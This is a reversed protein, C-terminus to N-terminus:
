AASGNTSEVEVKLDTLRTLVRARVVESLQRWAFDGLCGHAELDREFRAPLSPGVAPPAREALTRLPDHLETGASEYCWGVVDWALEAHSAEDRAIIELTEYAAPDACRRLAEEAVASSVGEMLCGDRLAEAALDALTSATVASARRLEPLPGPALVRGAYASALSFALRAHRIEDLAARHAAKVLRAPAGLAILTMSLRAFAPVSAHEFRATETWAAAV